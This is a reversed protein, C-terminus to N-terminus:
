AARFVICRRHCISDQAKKSLIYRPHLRYIQVTASHMGTPGAVCVFCSGSLYGDDVELFVLAGFRYYSWRDYLSEQVPICGQSESTSEYKPVRALPEQWM